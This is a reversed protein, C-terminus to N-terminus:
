PSHLVIEAVSVRPVRDTVGPYRAAPELTQPLLARREDPPAATACWVWLGHHGGAIHDFSESMRLRNDAARHVLRALLAKREVLPLDRVDKADLYCSISPRSVSRAVTVSTTSRM